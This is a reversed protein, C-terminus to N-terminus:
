FGIALQTKVSHDNSLDPLSETPVPGGGFTLLTGGKQPFESDFELKWVISPTLWYDLGVSVERAHPVFESESFDGGDGAPVTPIEGAVVARQNQGSYRALIETRDLYPVGLRSLLYGAQVYWGQRNDDGFPAGPIQRYTQVWEGLLELENLHYASSIGWANFWEGDQYKGDYTSAGVELRGADASLPLPYIRLRAGFAKGHTNTSINNPFNFMQGPVPIPLSTDFVPGNSAYVTYDVDQGESGWTAAGRLQVGLDTFPVLGGDDGERFPLPFAVFKNVWFPHLDEIFDGFPLFFKGALVELHDNLFLHAMATELNFESEKDQPLKAEIEGEFALWDTMRYLFLPEFQAAFTNFNTGRDYLYTGAASGTVVFRHDGWFGSLAQQLTSPAPGAEVKTELAKIQQTTQSQTQQNSAKLQRNEGEVQDLRRLLREILDRDKARDQELHKIARRIERLERSRPRPDQGLVKQPWVVALLGLFVLASKGLRQGNM